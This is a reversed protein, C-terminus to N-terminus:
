KRADDVGPRWRAGTRHASQADNVWTLQRFWPAHGAHSACPVLRMSSFPTEERRDVDSLVVFRTMSGGAVLDLMSHGAAVLEGSWPYVTPWGRDDDPGASAFAVSSDSRDIIVATGLGPLREAVAIGCVPLSAASDNAMDVV